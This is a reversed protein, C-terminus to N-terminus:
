GGLGLVFVVIKDKLFVLSWSWPFMGATWMWLLTPTLTDCKGNNHNHM